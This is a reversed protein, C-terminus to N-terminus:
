EGPAFEYTGPVSVKQNAPGYVLAIRQHPRLRLAAPNGPVRKGNVHVALTNASDAKLGGLQAAGLRVDWQTFLQGLTFPQGARGAEIHVVGDPTHTHLYSMTGSSQDVGINTPVTVPKGNVLVDLHIHYHEATGMAGLPLGALSARGPGDSPAPWPPLKTAGLGSVAALNGASQAAPPPSDGNQVSRVMLVVAALAVVAVVGYRLRRTRRERREQQHAADMRAAAATTRARAAASPAQGPPTATEQKNRSTM